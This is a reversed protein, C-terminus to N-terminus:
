QQDGTLAKEAQVLTEMEEAVIPLHLTAGMERAKTISASLADIRQRVVRVVADRQKYSLTKM